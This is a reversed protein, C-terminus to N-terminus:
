VSKLVNLAVEFSMPFSDIAIECTSRSGAVEDVAFARKCYALAGDLFFFALLLKSLDDDLEFLQFVFNLAHSGVAATRHVAGGGDRIASRCRAHRACLAPEEVVIRLVPILVVLILRVEQTELVNSFLLQHGVAHLEVAVLLRVVDFVAFEEVFHKAEVVFSDPADQLDVVERGGFAV